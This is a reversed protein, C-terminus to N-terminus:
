KRHRPRFAGPLDANLFATPVVGSSAYIYLATQFIGSLTSIVVTVAVIGLIAIVVGAIALGAIQSVIALVAILVFPLIALFGIIGFGVNAAMNEGWTQKFLSASRKISAIVGTGEIVYVPIVLFTVLTWALGAISSVISGMIGAREEVAKLLASVTASISAWGIIAPLHSAAASLASGVTPDGGSLRGHAASVLATNFFIVIFSTTFYFAAAVVWTLPGEGSTLAVPLLFTAGMVTAALGSLVPLWVLERDALLVQWSAKALAITSRIRGM